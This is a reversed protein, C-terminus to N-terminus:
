EQSLYKDILNTIDAITVSSDGSLSRDILETIANVDVRIETPQLDYIHGDVFAKGELIKIEFYYETPQMYSTAWNRYAVYGFEFSNNLESAIYLRYSGDPISDPITGYLKVPSSVPRMVDVVVSQVSDNLFQIFRGYDTALVFKLGGAFFSRTLNQLEYVNAALLSKNPSEFFNVGSCALSSEPIVVPNDSVTLTSKENSYVDFWETGDDQKSKMKVIYKGEPLDDPISVQFNLNETLDYYNIRGVDHQGLLFERGDNNILFLQLSGIFDKYSMNICESVYVSIKAGRKITAQSIRLNDVCLYSHHSNIGDDPKVGIAMQQGSIFGSNYPTGNNLRPSLNALQYYGDGEGSWGWNVHYDPYPNVGTKYGDLVFSHGSDSNPESGGYNVPRGNNLEEILLQHWDETSIYDRLLCSADADYGFNEVYGHLLDHQYAGSSSTGYSMEVSVGCSYMLTAVAEAQENTYNGTYADLMKDWRFYDDSFDHTIRKQNFEGYSYSKRGRGQNPFQHYKMVQAMATAVCGTLCKGRSSTPCLNNYPEDQDWRIGGLLPEVGEPRVDNLAVSPVQPDKQLNLYEEVYGELWFKLAPSMNATDFLNEDSYALIKPMREDGSVIVFGKGDSSDAYIYYAENNKGIGKLSSLSSSTAFLKYQPEGKIYSLTELQKCEKLAKAPTRQQAFVFFPLLTCLFIMASQKIIIFRNM